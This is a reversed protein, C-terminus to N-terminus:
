YTHIEEVVLTRVTIIIFMVNQRYRFDEFRRTVEFALEELPKLYQNTLMSVFICIEVQTNTLSFCLPARPQQQQKFISKCADVHGPHTENGEGHGSESLTSSTQWVRALYTQNSQQRQYILNKVTINSM